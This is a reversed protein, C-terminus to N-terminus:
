GVRGVKGGHEIAARAEELREKLGAALTEVLPRTLMSYHDGPVEHVALGGPTRSTWGHDWRSERAVFLTVPGEYPPPEYAWAARLNGEFVRRLAPYPFAQSADELTRLREEPSKGELAPMPQGAARLLDEFFLERLASEPLESAKPGEGRLDASTDLLALLAVEEGERRLQCAMEFAIAGGMSWGGLLYPGHPQVARVATVYLAAMAPISEPLVEDGDLGRAQLGYFPQEPGLRRALEAYPLVSGGVPHVCFFPRRGDGAQLEVLPSWPGADEHLLKALHEVTPNQFLATVPLPRGLKARIASQLRLTLLSHGGLEFFNDRVGVPQVGLVEEWIRVLRLELPTRPGIFARSAERSGEPVPLAKRDVKGSPTLPFADLPVWLGPVMYEPLREKLFARLVSAEPRQGETAIFWALLRKQGTGDDRADVICDRVAPHKALAAEIEGLEIRFGRVKVQSDGRGLFELEGEARHRAQDGTRYLRAGPETSFPDPLFREATLEPRGLYGRGVQVGGVYLEGSVGMPVPRLHEDLLYIRTNSLPWGISPLDPWTEPDGKLTLSTVAHAESPGYHNHLVGGLRQMLRRLAPTMRLQEGAVMIEKLRSPVLGERDAVEALGQLAVFPLFLREIGGRELLGLLAHADRRVEETLLVLEGGAAWTSFMEQFSVDFSLASFQLTRGGPAVSDRLQWHLLNVLAGHHLAVGKPLGTSGSTFIVYTLSEPGATPAPNTDRERALTEGELDLLLPTAQGSPLADRLAHQTILLKAGSTRLMLALREAPYAPDLPVYAGGAKLTGLVAVPLDLSRQVCVGVLTDTGVGRSRLHHALQNARRNLEGYTLHADGFRVAIADPTRAATAEFFSHVTPVFPYPVTSGAWDVLPQQEAEALLPVTSLKREPRALVGELLRTYHGAMRAVTAEDFLDTNYEWLSTWGAPTERVFLTLDFKAMGPEFAFEEVAVGPLEWAASGQQFVFMVQFLPTRSVDRVPVLADVLQEFPMDQHAYAGLSAERVRGLLERFSADGSAKVRIALTNTFFGILSEVERRNRGAIPTGVVIDPQGSHRALLAHFGAMLLMFPTVGAERSLEQVAGPLEAPLRQHFQAGRFTQVPPRPKDTPLELVPPAGSLQEKWWARQAELVDGRLWDRQWHAFDAYQVPLAPLTTEEGRVHAAYLAKLERALVDSSWFDCVIHHMVLLLVHEESSVRLVTARVLPGHELDFPLRVEAEARQRIAADSAGELSEVTFPLEARPSIRQVPEGNVEIFTTRLAEHRQVLDTLARELSTVDLQGKLRLFFPVNYSFGGADLRALFWLRQQAFSLPLAADRSVPVLPPPPPGADDRASEIRRALEAVTPAEFLVRVPLERQLVERLRSVVQTALLSHGGLEFFNDHAGVRRVGLLPAWINAM